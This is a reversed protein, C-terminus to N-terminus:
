PKQRLRRADIQYRKIRSYLTTPRVGLLQAAGGPGAVKGGCHTLAAIINDRERSERIQDSVVMPLPQGSQEGARGAVVDQEPPHNNKMDPLDAVPLDLRLKDGTSIIVAREIVNQLERINGPWHYQRLRAV